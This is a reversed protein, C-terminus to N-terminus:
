AFPFTRVPRYATPGGPPLSEVLAVGPPQWPIACDMSFFAPPPHWGRAGREVRAVTVHPAFPRPDAQFGQAVCARRVGRELEGLREPGQELAGVWLIRPREPSPFAGAGSLLLDPALSADLAGLLAQELGPRAAGDVAGLFFLTMHLDDAGYRRLPADPDGDLSAGVRGELEDGVEPGLMLAVFM